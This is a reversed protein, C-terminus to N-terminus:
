VGSERGSLYDQLGAHRFQYVGGVRRLVGYDYSDELFRIVRWPFTGSAALVIRAMSYSWWAMSLGDIIFSASGGVLFGVM